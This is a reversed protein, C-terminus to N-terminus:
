NKENEDEKFKNEILCAILAAIFYIFIDYIDFTGKAINILQLIEFLLGIFLVFSFNLLVYYKTINKSFNISGFFFSMAWLFDCSYNRLFSCIINNKTLVGNYFFLYIIIGIILTIISFVVRKM